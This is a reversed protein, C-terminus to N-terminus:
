STASIAGRPGLVDARRERQPPHRARGDRLGRAGLRRSGALRRRAPGPCVARRQLVTGTAPDITVLAGGGRLAVHARGAGDEAVRGPEDGPQLTVTYTIREKVLDVISVEDRDPDAAIATTGDKMGLLTGGSIAPPPRTARVTTGFTPTFM